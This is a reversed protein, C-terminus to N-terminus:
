LCKDVIEALDFIKLSTGNKRVANRMSLLCTPCGTIVGNIGEPITGMIKQDLVHNTVEEYYTWLGGGAGCCVTHERTLEPEVINLEPIMRLVERPPDYVNGHRGLDCPDHWTYNGKMQKLKAGKLSQAMLQSSHLVRFPVSIGLMSYVQSFM